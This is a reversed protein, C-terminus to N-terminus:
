ASYESRHSRALVRGIPAAGVSATAGSETRTAGTPAVDPTAPAAPVRNAPRTVPALPTEADEPPVADWSPLAWDPPEHGAPKRGAPKRGAPDEPLSDGWLQDSQPPRRPSM